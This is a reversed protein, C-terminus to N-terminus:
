EKKLFELAKERGDRYGDAVWRGAEQASLPTSGNSQRDFYHAHLRFVSKFNRAFEDLNSIVASYWGNKWGDFYCAALRADTPINGAYQVRPFHAKLLSLNRREKELSDLGDIMRDETFYTLGILDVGGIADIFSVKEKIKVTLGEGKKLQRNETLVLHNWADESLDLKLLQIKEGQKPYLFIRVGPRKGDVSLGCIGDLGWKEGRAEYLRFCIGNDKPLDGLFFNSYQGSENNRISVACLRLHEGSANQILIWAGFVSDSVLLLVLLLLRRM